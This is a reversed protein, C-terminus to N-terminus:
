LYMHAAPSDQKTTKVYKRVHNETVTFPLSALQLPLPPAGGKSKPVDEPIYRNMNISSVISELARKLNRVGKETSVTRIVSILIEDPIIIDEASLNHQKLIDPLLYDRAIVMKEKSDYGPVNITIMRDKLIPNIASEDNYSFIFLAKSLDLDLDSFYKDCFRDNQTPDTLHTLIGIIEEGRSTNSVKDLEDFLIVPNMSGAKMLIDAIKGYTSGEYTFGHGDLFSGDNSGGLAVFGFPLNLAQAIGHKVIQTKGVGPPGQLGICNGKSTPNSVWQAVIRMIQDKVENHGYVTEDLTKRTKQIFEAIVPQTDTPNVPLPKNIGLPLRSVANLWNRMKNYESSGERAANFGDIKAIIQQKISNDMNSGLVKFRLPIKNASSLLALASDEEILKQKDDPKVTNWYAYEEESMQNVFKKEADSVKSRKSGGSEVVAENKPCCRKRAVTNPIAHTTMIVLMPNSGGGGGGINIVATGDEAEEDDEEDEKDDEEEEEEEEEDDDEEEEEEEEEEDEEDEEDDEEEEKEEDDEDDDDDEDDEDDDDDDEEEGEDNDNESGPEYDPDEKM